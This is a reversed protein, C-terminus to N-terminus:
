TDDDGWMVDNLGWRLPTPDDADAIASASHLHFPAREAALEARLRRVEAFLVAAADAAPHASCCAFGLDSHQQYSTIATEYDNLQQDTLPQTM